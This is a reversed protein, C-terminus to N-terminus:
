LPDGLFEPGQYLLDVGQLGLDHLPGVGLKPSHRVLEPFPQGLALIQIVQQRLGEGQHPLRGFPIQALPMVIDLEHPTQDKMLALDGLHLGAFALGQDRGERDVEVGQGATPHVQDGDVVVQGLPVADPHTGDVMGQSQRHGAHLVVGAVLVIWGVFGRVRTQGIEFGDILSVGVQGVDGEPGVVLEPEVVEPVVHCDGGVHLDLPLQMVGYDVLHVVDEYVLSPGGRM